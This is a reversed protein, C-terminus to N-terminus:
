LVEGAKAEKARALSAEILDLIYKSIWLPLERDTMEDTLAALFKGLDM